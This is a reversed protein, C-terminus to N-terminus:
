FSWSTMKSRWRKCHQPPGGRLGNSAEQAAWRRRVQGVVGALLALLFRFQFAEEYIVQRLQTTAEDGDADDATMYATFM